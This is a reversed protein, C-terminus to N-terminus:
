NNPKFDTGNVAITSNTTPVARVDVPGQPRKLFAALAERIGDPWEAYSANSAWPGSKQIGLRDESWVVSGLYAQASLEWASYVDYRGVLTSPLADIPVNLSRLMAAFESANTPRSLLAAIASESSTICRIVPDFHREILLAYDLSLYTFTVSPEYPFRPNEPPGSELWKRFVERQAPSLSRLSLPAGALVDRLRASDLSGLLHALWYRIPAHFSSMGFPVLCHRWAGQLAGFCAGPGGSYCFTLEALLGDGNSELMSQALTRLAGRDVRMRRCREPEYPRILICDPGISLTVIRQSLLNTLLMRANVQGEVIASIAPALSEDPLLALVDRGSEKSLAELTEQLALSLPEFEPDVLTRATSPEPRPGWTSMARSGSEYLGLFSRGKDGMPIREPLRDILRQDQAGIVAPSQFEQRVETAATGMCVGLRDYVRLRFFLISHSPVLTLLVRVDDPVPRLSNFIPDWVSAYPDSPKDTNSLAASIRDSSAIYTRIAATASQPLPRQSGVPQNCFSATSGPPVNSLVDPGLSILLQALLVDLPGHPVIALRGNVLLSGDESRKRWNNLQELLNRLVDDETKLNSLSKKKAAIWTAIHSKRLSQAAASEKQLQESPVFLRPNGSADDEWKGLFLDAIPELLSDPKLDGKSSIVFIPENKLLRAASVQRVDSSAAKCFQAVSGVFSDSTTGRDLSVLVWCVVSLM